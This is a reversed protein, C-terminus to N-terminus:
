EAHHQEKLYDRVALGFRTHYLGKRGFLWFRPRFDMLGRLILAAGAMGYLSIDQGTILLHVANESRRVVAAEAAIKAIDTM